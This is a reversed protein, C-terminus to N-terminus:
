FSQGLALYFRVDGRSSGLGDKFAVAAGLRTRLLLGAGIGLDTVLEAGADMLDTPVPEEAESWGGGIEWFLHTVLRDVLLPLKGVATGALLIPVRLEVAGVLARTFRGGSQYGRMPFTRRGSRITSGAALPIGDGAAGGISYSTPVTGGSIGGTARAALVWHAFGSLPLALYGNVGGRLEYSWDSGGIEWRRLYLGAVSGGNEPSIALAPRDAHSAAASLVGGAFTPNGPTLLLPEDGDNVLADREVFAGLRWSAGSRWRRWKNTLGIEVSHERFSVPVTAGSETPVLGGYDWKQAASLDVSWSRWRTHDLSLLAEWRGNSPAVAFLATYQTRELADAGATLAGVFVGSTSEDHLFPIWFHPRLSGWPAYGSQRVSVAAAEEFAAPVARDEPESGGVEQRRRVLLAFGDALTTSYYLTGDPEIAPERAGTVESTVRRIDKSEPSYSYIQPLGGRESAFLLASGDATWVPDADMAADNTVMECADPRGWPWIVIDWRGDAHRAAGVWDGSPSIAIRGWDDAAPVSMSEEELGPYRLLRVTRAASDLRIVGIGRGPVAFVDTSRIDHTLRRWSGASGWHYLDSRIEVPSQFELQTVLVGEDLWSIGEVATMRRAALKEGSALDLLILQQASKGDDRRYALRSGDPSVRPRPESRLGREVIEGSRRGTDAQVRLREWGPDVGDAGASRMPSSVNFVIIQRSTNDVFRAVTSDGFERSSADFFRSGWAYPRAGAPWVRNAFTA